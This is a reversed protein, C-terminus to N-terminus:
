SKRKGCKTCYEEVKTKEYACSGAHNDINGQVAMALNHASWEENTDFVEGCTCEIIYGIVTKRKEWVHQCDAPKMGTNEGNGNENNSPKNIQRTDKVVVQCRLKRNGVKASVFATGKKKATIKGTKSVTAVKKNSTTWRVKKKTGKIKLKYTPKAKKKTITLIIKTKNLKPKTKTKAQATMPMAVTFAMVAIVMTTITKKIIDKM